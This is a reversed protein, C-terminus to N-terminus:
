KGLGVSTTVDFPVTVTKLGQWVDFQITAAQVKQGLAYSVQMLKGNSSWSGGRTSKIPKGAADLFKVDAVQEMGADNTFTIEWSAWKPKGVKKITLSVPGAKIKTGAKLAVSKQTFTKTGTASKIALTGTLHLHTAGDAPVGEGRITLLAAKADKSIEDGISSIGNRFDRKGVLLDTGKDDAFATIKSAKRDVEILGGAPYQVLLSVASGAYNFARMDQNGRYPKAVLRLGAVSVTAKSAADAVQKASAGANDAAVARAGSMPMLVAMSAGAIAAVGLIGWAARQGRITHFKMM